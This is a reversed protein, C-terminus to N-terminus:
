GLVKKMPQYPFPAAAGFISMSRVGTSKKYGLRQYFGVAYPTAALTIKTVDRARCWAEFEDMLQRGIGQEHRDGDVFLSHVRGPSGRLVGVIEGRDEAVLVVKAAIAEAVLARFNPDDARAYAFPGLLRYQDEPSFRGLNFAFFTDAILIGVDRTDRAADYPRIVVM